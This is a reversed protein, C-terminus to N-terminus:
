SSCVFCEKGAREWFLRERWGSVGAPQSGENLGSSASKRSGQAQTAQPLPPRRSLSHSGGPGLSLIALTPMVESPFCAALCCALARASPKSILLGWTRGALVHHRGQKCTLVSLGRLGPRGVGRAEEDWPEALWLQLLSPLHPSWGLTTLSPQRRSSALNILPRWRCCTLPLYVPVVAPGQPLGQLGRLRLTSMQTIPALLRPPCRSALGDSESLSPLSLYPLVRVAVEWPCLWPAKFAGASPGVLSGTCTFSGQWSGPRLQAAALGAEPSCPSFRFHPQRLLSCIHACGWVQRTLGVERCGATWTCCANRGEPGEGVSDGAWSM